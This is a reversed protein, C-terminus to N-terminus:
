SMTSAQPRVRARACVRGISYDMRSLEFLTESLQTELFAHASIVKGINRYISPPLDVIVPAHYGPISKLPLKPKDDSM